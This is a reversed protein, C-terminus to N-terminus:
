EFQYSYKPHMREQLVWREGASINDLCNTEENFYFNYYNQTNFQRVM